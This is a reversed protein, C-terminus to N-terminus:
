FAFAIVQDLAIALQLMRSAVHIVILHYYWAELDVLMLFKFDKAQVPLHHELELVVAVERM